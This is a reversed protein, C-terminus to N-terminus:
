LVLVLFSIAAVAALAVTQVVVQVRTALIPEVVAM